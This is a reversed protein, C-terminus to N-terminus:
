FQLVCALWSSYCTHICSKQRLTLVFQYGLHDLLAHLDWPADKQVQCWTKWTEGRFFFSPRHSPFLQCLQLKWGSPLEVGLHPNQKQIKSGRILGFLSRREQDQRAFMEKWNRRQDTNQLSLVPHRSYASACASNDAGSSRDAGAYQHFHAMGESATTTHSSNWTSGPLM